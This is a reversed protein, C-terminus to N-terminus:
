ALPDFRDDFSEGRHLLIEVPFALRDRFLPRFALLLDLADHAARNSHVAIELTDGALRQLLDLPELELGQFQIQVRFRSSASRPRHTEPSGGETSTAPTGPAFRMWCRRPPMSITTRM